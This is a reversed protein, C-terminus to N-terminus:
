YASSVSDPLTNWPPHPPPQLILAYGSSYKISICHVAEKISKWMTHVARTNKTPQRGQMHIAKAPRVMQYGQVQNNTGCASPAPLYMNNPSEITMAVLITEQAYIGTDGEIATHLGEIFDCAEEMRTMTNDSFTILIYWTQKVDSVMGEDMM